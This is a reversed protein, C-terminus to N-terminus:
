YPNTEDVKAFIIEHIIDLFISWATKAEDSLSCAQDLVGVVVPRLEKFSFM